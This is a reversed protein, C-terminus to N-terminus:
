IFHRLLKATLWRFFPWARAHSLREAQEPTVLKSTSLTEEAAALVPAVIRPDQSFYMGEVMTEDAHYEPNYSGFAAVKGDAILMKGHERHTTEYIEAGRSVFTQYRASSNIYPLSSVQGDIGATTIRVKVGRDLADLIAAEVEKCPNFTNGTLVISHQARRITECYARTVQNEGRGDYTPDWVVAQMPITGAPPTAAANRDDLETLESALAEKRARGQWLGLPGKGMLRSNGLVRLTEAGITKAIPGELLMEMDNLAFDKSFHFDYINRGGVIAARDDVVIAKHHNGGGWHKLFQQPTGQYVVNGGLAELELKKDRLAQVDERTEHLLSPSVRDAVWTTGVIVKVGRKAAAILHDYFELGRSDAGIGYYSVVVTSKASDILRLRESWSADTNRLSVARTATAPQSFSCSQLTRWYSADFSSTGQFADMPAAKAAPKPLAIPLNSPPPATTVSRVRM